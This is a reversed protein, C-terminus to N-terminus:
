LGQSISLIGMESRYTKAVPTLLDLLLENKEKEEGTLVRTREAYIIGRSAPLAAHTERGRTRHHAGAAAASLILLLCPACRVGVSSFRTSRNALPAATVGQPLPPHKNELPRTRWNSRRDPHRSAGGLFFLYGKM